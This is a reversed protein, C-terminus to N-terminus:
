ATPSKDEPTGAAALRAMLREATQGPTENPEIELWDLDMQNEFWTRQRKSFQRTKSKVLEVTDRYGRLGQLHEVVQRYGIAQLAVRNRDLGAPLAQRTEEVLGQAFMRDVRDQIRRTLDDPNRRLGFSRGALGAAKEPWAARQSSFPRGTLRIVEVARVLRRRNRIDISDFTEWDRRALEDLLVETPLAELEARLGPDPAPASGLGNLWANFYLGTGGCLIPVAGRGTIEAIRREAEEVFRAADFASDLPLLDILHHPVTRRDEDSPKATGVDLGQYVQMSDVSLIEGGLRLALAVAVDSKGSATPGAILIPKM